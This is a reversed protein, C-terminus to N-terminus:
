IGIGILCAAATSMLTCGNVSIVRECQYLTKRLSSAPKSLREGAEDRETASLAGFVEM